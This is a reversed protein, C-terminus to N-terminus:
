SDKRGGIVGNDPNDLGSVAKLGPNEDEFKLSIFWKSFYYEHKLEHHM